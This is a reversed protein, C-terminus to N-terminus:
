LATADKDEVRRGHSLFLLAGVGLALCPGVISMGMGSPVSVGMMVVANSAAHMFVCLLISRTRSYLWGFLLANGMIGVLFQAFSAHYQAVGPLFFLPVHWLAWIPGILLAARIPGIVRGWEEQTIGRWGFEELGGGVITMLFYLPFLYWSKFSVSAALAPKLAVAVGIAMFGLAIPLGLALLYWVPRVRWRLVRQNFERLSATEPTRWVAIYAAITPGLGGLVYLSMYLGNGYATIQAQTLVALVGWSVWTIGFATALYILARRSTPFHDTM